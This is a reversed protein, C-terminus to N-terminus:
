LDSSRAKKWPDERGDTALAVDYAAFRYCLISLTIPCMEEVTLPSSQRIFHTLERAITRFNIM